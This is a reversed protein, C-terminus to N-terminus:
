IRLGSLITESIDYVKVFDDQMNQARPHTNTCCINKILGSKKLKEIANGSFVGHVCVVYINKAGAKKYAKAANIISGGSRIMDDYIIVNKDKVEAKLAKVITESGSIREKIIYADDLCLSTSMKEIQKARGIDASALVVDKCESRIDAVIKEIVPEVTLHVPHINQEFYHQMSPAHLDIMYVYTGQASLPISSFLRAINKATVVEGTKVAREMTSYGFYPVVLHLSSCGENVLSCAVNYAEFVAEDGVTACIYVEPKGKIAQSNEIRWYHEGDPFTQTEISINNFDPNL